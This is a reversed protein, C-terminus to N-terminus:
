GELDSPTYVIVPAGLEQEIGRLSVERTEGEGIDSLIYLTWNGDAPLTTYAVGMSAGLPEYDFLFAREPGTLQNDWPPLEGVEAIAWAQPQTGNDEQSLGIIDLLVMDGEPLWRVGFIAQNDLPLMTTTTEGSEVDIMRLINTPVLDTFSEPIITDDYSLYAITAGDPSLTPAVLVEDVDPELVVRSTGTIPNVAYIGQLGGQPNIASMYLTGDETWAFSRPPFIGSLTQSDLLLTTEGGGVPVSQAQWPTLENLPSEDDLVRVYAINQGNEQLFLDIIRENDDLAVSLRADREQLMWTAIGLQEDGEWVLYALFKGDKSAVVDSATQGENLPLDLITTEGTDPSVAMLSDGFGEIGVWIWQAPLLGNPDETSSTPLLTPTPSGRGNTIGDGPAIDPNLDPMNSLLTCAVTSALAPLLILLSSLPRKHM